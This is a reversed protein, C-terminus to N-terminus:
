WIWVDNAIMPFFALDVALIWFAASRLISLDVRGGGGGGGSSSTLIKSIEISTSTRQHNFKQCMISIHSLSSFLNNPHGKGITNLHRIDRIDKAHQFRPKWIVQNTAM